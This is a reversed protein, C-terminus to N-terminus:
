SNALRHTLFAKHWRDFQHLKCAARCPTVSSADLIFLIKTSFHRRYNFRKDMEEPADHCLLFVFTHKGERM